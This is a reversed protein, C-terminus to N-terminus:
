IDEIMEQAEERTNEQNKFVIGCIVLKCEECFEIQKTGRNEPGHEGCICLVM